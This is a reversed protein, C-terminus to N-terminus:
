INFHNLIYNVYTKTKTFYVIKSIYAKTIIRIKIIYVRIKQYTLIIVYLFKFM